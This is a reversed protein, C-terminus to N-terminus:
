PVAGQLFVRELTLKVGGAAFREGRLVGLRDDLALTTQRDADWAVILTREADAAKRCTIEYTAGVAAAPDYVEAKVEALSGDLLKARTEPALPQGVPLGGPAKTAFEGRADKGQVKGEYSYANKGKRQVVLSTEARANVSSTIRVSDVTRDKAAVEVRLEDYATMGRTEKNPILYSADESVVLAGGAAAVATRRVFGLPVDAIKMIAIEVGVPKVTAARLKFSGAFAGTVRKFTEEYGPEDHMCLVPVTPHGAMMMKLYGLRGGTAATGYTVDVFVVPSEGRVEVGVPIAKRLVYKGALAKMQAALVAQLTGAVSKAESYVSCRIPQETGIPVNIAYTAGENQPAVEPPATAEVEATLNGEFLSVPHKALADAERKLADRLAVKAKPQQAPSSPASACAALLLALASGVAGIPRVSTRPPM